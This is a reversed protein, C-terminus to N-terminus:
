QSLFQRLSASIMMPELTSVIVLFGGCKFKIVWFDIKGFFINNETM